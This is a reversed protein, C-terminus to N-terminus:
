SFKKSYSKFNFKLKIQKLNIVLIILLSYKNILNMGNLHVCMAM